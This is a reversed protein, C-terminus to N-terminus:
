FQHFGFLTQVKMLLMTCINIEENQNHLTSINLLVPDLTIETIDKCDTGLNLLIEFSVTECGM